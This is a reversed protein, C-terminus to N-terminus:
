RTSVSRTTCGSDRRSRGRAPATRRNGHPSPSSHSHVGFCRRRFRCSSREKGSRPHCEARPDRTWENWSLWRARRAVADSPYPLAAAPDTEGAASILVAMDPARVSGDPLFLVANAARAWAEVDALDHTVVEFSVHNRVRQLHRWLHYRVATMQRDGCGMVYGIFGDLHPALEPDDRDRQGHLAHPFDLPPPDRLTAYANILLPEVPAAGGGDATDGRGFLRKLFSM